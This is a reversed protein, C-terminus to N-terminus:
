RPEGRGDDELEFTDSFERSLAEMEAHIAACIRATLRQNCLPGYNAHEVLHELAEDTADAYVQRVAGWDVSALDEDFARPPDLAVGRANLHDLGPPSGVLSTRQNPLSLAAVARAPHLFHVKVWHSGELNPRYLSEDPVQGRLIGRAADIADSQEFAEPKAVPSPHEGPYFLFNVTPTDSSFM